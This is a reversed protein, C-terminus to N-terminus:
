ETTLNNGNEILIFTGGETLLDDGTTIPSSGGINFEEVYPSDLIPNNVVNMGLAVNWISM